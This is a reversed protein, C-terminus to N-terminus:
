AAGLVVRSSSGGDRVSQDFKLTAEISASFINIPNPGPRIRERDEKKTRTHVPWCGITKSVDNQGSSVTELSFGDLWSPLILILLVTEETIPSRLGV